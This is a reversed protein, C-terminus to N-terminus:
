NVTESSQECAEVPTLPSIKRTQTTYNNTIVM